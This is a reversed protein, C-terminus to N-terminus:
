ISTGGGGWKLIQVKGLWSKLMKILKNWEKQLQQFM